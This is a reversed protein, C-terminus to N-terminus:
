WNYRYSSPNANGSYTQTSTKSHLNLHANVLGRYQLNTGLTLVFVSCMTGWLNTFVQCSPLNTNLVYTKCSAPRITHKGRKRKCSAGLHRILVHTQLRLTVQIRLVEQGVLQSILAVDVAETNHQKLKHSSSLRNGHALVNDSLYNAALLGASVQEFSDDAFLAEYSNPPARMVIYSLM